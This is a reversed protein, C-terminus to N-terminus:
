NSFRKEKKREVQSRRDICEKEKEEAGVSIILRLWFDANAWGGRGVRGERV